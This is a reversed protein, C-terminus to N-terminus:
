IRKQGDHGFVQLRSDQGFQVLVQVGARGSSHWGGGIMVEFRSARANLASLPSSTRLLCLEVPCAKRKREARHGGRNDRWAIFCFCCPRTPSLWPCQVPQGTPCMPGLPAPVTTWWCPLRNCNERVRGVSNPQAM